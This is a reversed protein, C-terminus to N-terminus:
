NFKVVRNRGLSKARYLATDASFILSSFNHRKDPICSAIGLSLTIYLDTPSNIHPIELAEIQLRIQEAVYETGELNTNPLIVAFEEGGYRCVLDAPRKVAKAIAKAVMQLCYDGAQHGYTDNYLKFHDIDCLILSLPAQERALRRWENQIYEDFKRRNAVKTLSDISSLLELELNAQELQQYLEAKQIALSLQITIQELFDIETIQWCRYLDCQQACLIGWFKEEVIVPVAIASIREQCHGNLNYKSLCRSDANGVVITNGEALPEFDGLLEVFSEKSSARLRCSITSELSNSECLVHFNKGAIIKAVFITEVKLLKNTQEIAAQLIVSLELPKHINKTIEILAHNIAVKQALEREIEKRQTIDVCSGVLGAFNGQDDEYLEANNLVWRYQGNFSLLRYEIQFGTQQELASHCLDEFLDREEPHILSIWGQQLEELNKGTFDLWSRNLFQFKRDIGITWILISNTDIVTVLLNRNEAQQIVAERNISLINDGM